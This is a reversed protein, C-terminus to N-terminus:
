LKDRISPPLSSINPRNTKRPPTLLPVPTDFWQINHIPVFYENQTPSSYLVDIYNTNMSSPKWHTVRKDVEAIGICGFSGSYTGTMQKPSYLLVTITKESVIDRHFQLNQDIGYTIHPENISRGHDFQDRRTDVGKWTEASYLICTYVVM